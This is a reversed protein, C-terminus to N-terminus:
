VTPGDPPWQNTARDAKVAADVDAASVQRVLGEVPINGVMITGEACSTLVHAVAAVALLRVCATPRVLVLEAVAVPGHPRLACAICL